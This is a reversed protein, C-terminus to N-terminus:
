SCEGGCSPCQPLVVHRAGAESRGLIYLLAMLLKLSLREPNETVLRYVQSVSLTIGREIRLPRLAATSFMRQSATM